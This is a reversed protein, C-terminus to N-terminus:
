PLNAPDGQRIRSTVYDLVRNDLANWDDLLRSSFRYLVTLDQGVRVDRQCDGSTAQQETAPLVCRVAYDTKGPRKATLMVEGDFGTGPKLRHEVLGFDFPVAAGEFLHSYIPELRGSMDRSMTSQSLQIFILGDSLAVDDFRNRNDRSYGTMEPWLLAMDTRESEGSHRQSAFRLANAPLRLTDMGITIDFDALSDSHSGTVLADGLYRAALNIAASLLAIVLIAATLRTVFRNSFLPLEDTSNSANVM